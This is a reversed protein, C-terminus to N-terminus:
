PKTVRRVRVKALNKAGKRIVRAAPAMFPRAAITSTGFELPVAHPADAISAASLPGTREVFISRALQGSDSNPPEGPKSPLHIKGSVSGAEIMRKAEAAHEAAFDMVVNGMEKPAAAAIARLRQLARGSGTIKVM